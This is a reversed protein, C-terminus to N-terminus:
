RKELTKRSHPYNDLLNDGTEDAPSSDQHLFYYVGFEDLESRTENM